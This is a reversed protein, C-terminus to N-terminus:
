SRSVLEHQVRRVKQRWQPLLEVVATPLPPLRVRRLVQNVRKCLLHDNTYDSLFRERQFLAMFESLLPLPCAILTEVTSVVRATEVSGVSTYYDELIRPRAEILCADLILETFLHGLFSARLRRDGPFRRRLSLALDSSLELFCPHSHFREDDAFHMQVGMLLEGILPDVDVLARDIHRCRLRPRPHCARLWDPLATGVVTYPCDLVTHAHALYNM